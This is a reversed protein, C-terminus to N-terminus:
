SLPRVGRCPPYRGSRGGAALAKEVSAPLRSRGAPGSAGRAAHGPINRSLRNAHEEAHGPEGASRTQPDRTRHAAQLGEALATFSEGGLVVEAHRFGSWPLRFRHLM